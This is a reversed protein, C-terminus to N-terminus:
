DRLGVAKRERRRMEALDSGISIMKDQSEPFGNELNGLTGPPINQSDIGVKRVKAM